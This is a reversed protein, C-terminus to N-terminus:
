PKIDNEKLDDSLEDWVAQSVAALGIPGHKRIIEQIQEQIESLIQKEQPHCFFVRDREVGNYQTISLRIGKSGKTGPRKAFHIAEVHKFSLALAKIGEQFVLEQQDHWRFPPKSTIFSAVSELWKNDSLHTDILRLCFAKLKPETISIVLASARKFISKRSHTATGLIDFADSIQLRLRELLEMYSNKLEQLYSKLKQAFEQIRADNIDGDSKFPHFGCAIPLDHFLLTSPERALLITERLSIAEKSLRKTNHVYEPLDAVFVCLPQVVDLIESKRNPIKNLELVKILRDFVEARVGQIKCYQVEFYEPEKILRQLEGEKIERLFSGDEFMAIDQRHAVYYIVLLLPLLGDRIGYPPRRLTEFLESVSVRKDIENTLIKHIRSLVPVIRCPDSDVPPEQIQWTNGKEVHINGNRLISLYMSMEPPRKKELMGLNPQAEMELMRGILRMRAAAAASSINRRNILENQVIPARRFLIDCVDSLHSLLTKGSPITLLKGESIWSIEIQGAYGRLDVLDRIRKELNARAARTQRSVEERAFPDSNLSPINQGIWDWCICEQLYSSVNNLPSPIAIIIEPGKYKENSEAVHLALEREKQSDCLVVFITGDSDKLPQQPFNNFEFAPLFHVGFYRLNGTKIYHRRAVIPKPDLHGSIKESVKHITGVARVAESYAKDLDVSTHPWLCLGGSVGRDYLVGKKKKLKDVLKGVRKSLNNRTGAIARVVVEETSLLDNVDLLNLLGVTKLIQIELNDDYGYGQIISDIANWHTQTNNLTLRHSLNARLYDYFDCIRYFQANSIPKLSYAQLGFPESSNIFSFLSRENQGFKHFIRTMVPIVLPDLPFLGVAKKILSEQAPVVGYWGNDIAFRMQSVAERHHDRSVGKTRIGLASKLLVVIQELPYNFLIEEFRGAIKEWERKSANDLYDSYANFGQHLLGIIFLPTDGSRSASEALRQLIYIDQKDPHMAAYELFKGLEDIILLVGSGKSDSKIKKSFQCLIDVIENDSPEQRSEVIQAIQKTLKANSGNTYIRAITRNLASLIAIALSERSGTILIPILRPKETTEGNFRVANQLTKTLNDSRDSFLYAVLLAFSSKGAGYDGTLRWARKTSGHIMGESLRKLCVKTHDTVIYGACGDPSDFDTELHISRLFRMKINFLDALIKPKNPM